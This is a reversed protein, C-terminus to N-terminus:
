LLTETARAKVSHCFELDTVPQLAAPNALLKPHMWCLAHKM